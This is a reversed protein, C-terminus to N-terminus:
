PAAHFQARDDHPVLLRGPAVTVPGRHFEAQQKEIVMGTMEDPVWRLWEYDYGWAPTSIVIALRRRGDVDIWSAEVFTAPSGGGYPDPMGPIFGIAEVTREFTEVKEKIQALYYDYGHQEPDFYAYVAAIEVDTKDALVKAAADTEVASGKFLYDVFGEAESQGHVEPWASKVKAIGAKLVDEVVTEARQETLVKKAAERFGKSLGKVEALKEFGEGLAKGLFPAVFSFGIELILSMMEAQEALEAKIAGKETLAAYGFATLADHIRGRTEALLEDHEGQSLHPVGPTDRAVDRVLDRLHGKRDQDGVIAGGDALSALAAQLADRHGSELLANLRDRIVSEILDNGQGRIWDRSYVWDRYPVPGSLRYTDESTVYLRLLQDLTVWPAHLGFPDNDPEVTAAHAPRHHRPHQRRLSGDADPSTQAREGKLAAAAAQEAEAEVPADADGIQLPEETSPRLGRQQVVHALEHALLGRDAESEPESLVVDRGVAYARAEVARTSRAADQDDHVRVGSLDSGYVHEFGARIGPELPRGPSRLVDHVLAPAARRALVRRLERGPALETDVRTRTQEREGSGARNPSLRGPERLRARTGAAAVIDDSGDM